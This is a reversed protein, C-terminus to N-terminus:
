KGTHRHCAEQVSPLQLLPSSNNAGLSLCTTKASVLGGTKMSSDRNSFSNRGVACVALSYGNCILSTDVTLRHPKTGEQAETLM